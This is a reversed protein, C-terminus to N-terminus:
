KTESPGAPKQQAQIPLGVAENLRARLCDRCVPGRELDLYEGEHKPQGCDVCFVLKIGFNDMLYSKTM